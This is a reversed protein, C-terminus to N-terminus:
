GSSKGTRGDWIVDRAGIMRALRALEAALKKSRGETWKVNGEAWLNIVSLTGAKRDAKLEIRGVFREGELLPYVYYGWKRKAAPVFIEITYEFGFIRKLRARDRVAPDFPNLIRLRSTPAKLNELRQKIDRPAYLAHWTGDATQMEIPVLMAGEAEAWAKVEAMSLADWFARIDRLSAMALRELASTCLWHIQESNSPTAAFLKAPIVRESLDYYKRFSIRYATSLEGIYWMHDLALKHPPRSWMKKEGAIKSSFAKTSLAGQDHIRAKIEAQIKQSPPSRYYNPAGRRERMRRFQKKWMPYFDMPIISADHTFHEFVSREESLLKALMPERYNQNRSWLIHHHARTVNRISDIQVFGLDKIVQLADVPGEPARALGHSRLWLRRADRNNIKLVMYFGLVM